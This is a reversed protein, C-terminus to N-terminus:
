LNYKMFIRFQDCLKYVAANLGMEINNCFHLINCQNLCSLWLRVKFSVRTKLDTKTDNFGSKITSYYSSGVVETAFKVIKDVIFARSFNRTQANYFQVQKM